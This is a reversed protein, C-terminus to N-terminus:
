LTGDEMNIMKIAADAAPLVAQSPNKDLDDIANVVAALQGLSQSAAARLDDSSLKGSRGRQGRVCEAPNTKGICIGSAQSRSSSSSPSGLLPLLQAAAPTGGGFLGKIWGFFGKEAPAQAAPMPPPNVAASPPLAVPKPPTMPNSVKSTDDAGPLPLTHGQWLATNLSVTLMVGLWLWWSRKGKFDPPVGASPWPKDMSFAVGGCIMSAVGIVAVLSFYLLAKFYAGGSFIEILLYCAGLGILAPWAFCFIAWPLASWWRLSRHAVEKGYLPAAGIAWAMLVVPVYVLILYLWSTSALPLLPLRWAMVAGILAAVGSGLVAIKSRLEAM